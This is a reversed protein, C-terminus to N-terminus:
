LVNTYFAFGLFNALCDECSRREFFFGNFKPFFRLIKESELIFIEVSVLAALKQGVGVLIVPQKFQFLTEVFGGVPRASLREDRRLASLRKSKQANLFPRYAGIKKVSNKVSYISIKRM